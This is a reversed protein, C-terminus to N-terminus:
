CRPADLGLGQRLANSMRVDFALVFYGRGVSFIVLQGADVTTIQGGDVFITYVTRGTTTGPTACVRVDDISDELFLVDAGGAGWEAAATFARADRRGGLLTEFKSGGIMRVPMGARAFASVVASEGPLIPLDTPERQAGVASSAAAARASTPAPTRRDTTEVQVCSAAAVVMCFM